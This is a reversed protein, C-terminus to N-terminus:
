GALAYLELPIGDPDYLVLAKANFTSDDQVGENRIGASDLPACLAAVRRTALRWSSDRIASGQQRVPNYLLHTSANRPEHQGTPRASPGRRRLYESGTYTRVHVQANQTPACVPLHRM